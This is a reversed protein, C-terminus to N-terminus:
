SWKINKYNKGARYARIQNRKLRTNNQATGYPLHGGTM